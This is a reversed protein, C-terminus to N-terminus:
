LGGDVTAPPHEIADRAENCRAREAALAAEDEELTTGTRDAIARENQQCRLTESVYASRQADSTAAGCGHM